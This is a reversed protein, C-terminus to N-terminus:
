GSYESIERNQVSILFLRVVNGIPPPLPPASKWGLPLDGPSIILNQWDKISSNHFTMPGSVSTGAPSM